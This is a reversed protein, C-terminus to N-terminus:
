EVPIAKDALEKFVDKPFGYPWGNSKLASMPVDQLRPGIESPSLEYEALYYAAHKVMDNMSGTVSRDLSKAFHVTKCAPAINQEFISEYGATEMLDRIRNLALDIFESDTRIGKGVMVTSSLSKTNALLIFQARDAFFLHATWDALPNEDLPLASLRGAKIKTALKQSLRFIM